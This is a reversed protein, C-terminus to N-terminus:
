ILMMIGKASLLTIMLAFTIDGLIIIINMKKPPYKLAALTLILIDNPLPLFGIYFYAIFPLLWKFWKKKEILNTIKNIKKDWKGKVLERGKSGAYFM